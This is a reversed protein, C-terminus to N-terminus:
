PPLPPLHLWRHLEGATWRLAPRPGAPLPRGDATLLLAPEDRSLPPPPGEAQREAAALAPGLAAAEIARAGLRWALTWGQGPLAAALTSCAALLREFARAPAVPDLVVTLRRAAADEHEAVLWRRHRLSARWHIRRLPDGCHRPRLRAIGAGGASAALSGLARWAAPRLRGCPPWVVVMTPEGLTRAAEWLGFPHRALALPPPMRVLGRRPFRLPCPLELGEPGIGVVTGLTRVRRSVPDEVSCMVPPCPRPAALRLAAPAEEGAVVRAPWRWHATLGAHARPTLWRGLGLAAVLAAAGAAAPGGGQWLALAALGVAAAVSGRGLATLAPADPRM